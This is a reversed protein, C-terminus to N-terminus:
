YLIHNMCEYSRLNLELLLQLVLLYLFLFEMWNNSRLSITATLSQLPQLDSTGVVFAVEVFTSSCYGNNCKYGTLKGGMVWVESSTVLTRYQTVSEHVVKVQKKVGMGMRLGIKM